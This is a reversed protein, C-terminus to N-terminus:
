YLLLRLKYDTQWDKNNDIRQKPWNDNDNTQWDKNNDITQKTMLILSFNTLSGVTPLLEALMQYVLTEM